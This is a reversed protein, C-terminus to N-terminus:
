SHIQERGCASTRGSRLWLGLWDMPWARPASAGLALVEALSMVEVLGRVRRGSDTEDGAAKVSVGGPLAIGFLTSRERNHSEMSEMEFPNNLPVLWDSDLQVRSGGKVFTIEEASERLACNRPDPADVPQYHGGFVDLCHPYSQEAHRRYLKLIGTPTVCWCCSAVTCTGRRTCRPKEGVGIVTNSEEDLIAM